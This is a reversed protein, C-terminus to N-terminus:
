GPSPRASRRATASGRRRLPNAVALVAQAAREGVSRLSANEKAWQVLRAQAEADIRTTLAHDMATAVQEIDYDVAWGLGNESVIRRSPGPGAFLVPTGCAVSAYIKTPIMYDYNVGPRVSALSARAGRLWTATAEAPQRDIFVVADPPLKAAAAQLTDRESGLGVFALRADPHAVRVRAFADIFVSAGQIESATGAYVLYPDTIREQAPGPRFLQTDVGNGVTVITTQTKWQRLRDSVGDSVSVVAAAGHVVAKELATVAAVVPWPATTSQTGDSWVDAAYHVYPVGRLACVTRVVGGTTPPPEAVVVDPRPCTLLRLVLPIDFSLYQAYGRVYGQRDRLVPLRSITAPGAPLHDAGEATSTLVLVDAGAACLAEVLAGLRFSAAAPEPLYIRSAVVVRPTSPRASRGESARQLSGTTLMM